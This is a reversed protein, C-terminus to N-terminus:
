SKLQKFRKNIGQIMSFISRMLTKAYATRRKCSGKGRVRQKTLKQEDLTKTSETRNVRGMDFKENVSHLLQYNTNM